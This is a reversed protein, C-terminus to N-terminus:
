DGVHLDPQEKSLSLAKLDERVKEMAWQAARSLQRQPAVCLCLSLSKAQRQSLPVFALRGEQVDRFVDLWSMVAIGAGSLVLARMMEVNNCRIAYRIADVHRAYLAKVRDGVLLSETPVIHRWDLTQGLLLQEHGALAHGAPMAVGIPISRMVQMQLQTTPPPDMVLGFDIEGAGVLLPIQANGLVQVDVAIGPHEQGMRALTAPLVGTALANICALHVQGRRLGSLEDFRELTRGYERHWRRLDALLLEGAATLRMGSPLREFLATEYKQEALLIQRDIASASVHLVEAARRLSGLRAVEMFYRTFRSFTLVRAELM